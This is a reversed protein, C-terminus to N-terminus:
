KRNNYIQRNQINWLFSITCHTTKQSQSRESLDYKWTEDIKYWTDTSWANINSFLIETCAEKMEQTANMLNFDRSKVIIALTEIFMQTYMKKHLLINENGKPIYTHVYRLPLAADCPLWINLLWVKYYM